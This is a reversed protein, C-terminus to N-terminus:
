WEDTGWCPAPPLGTDSRHCVGHCLQSVCRSVASTICPLLPHNAAPPLAAWLPLRGCNATGSCRGRRRPCPHQAGDPNRGWGHEPHPAAMRSRIAQSTGPLHATFGPQCGPALSVLKDCATGDGRCFIHCGRLLWTGM